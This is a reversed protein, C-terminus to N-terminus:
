RAQNEGAPHGFVSVVAATSGGVLAGVLFAGVAYGVIPGCDCMCGFECYCAKVPDGPVATEQELTM